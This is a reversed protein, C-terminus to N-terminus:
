MHNEIVLLDFLRWTWLYCRRLLGRLVSKFALVCLSFVRVETEMVYCAMHFWTDGKDVQKCWTEMIALFYFNQLLFGKRVCVCNSPIPLNASVWSANSYQELVICYTRVHISPLVRPVTNVVDNAGSKSVSSKRYQSYLTFLFGSIFVIKFTACWLNGLQFLNSALIGDLQLTWVNGLRINLVIFIVIEPKTCGTPSSVLVFVIEHCFAQSRRNSNVTNECRTSM